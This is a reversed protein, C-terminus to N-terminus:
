VNWIKFVANRLRQARALVYDSAHGITKRLPVASPENVFYLPIESTLRLIGTAAFLVQEPLLVFTGLVLKPPYLIGSLMITSLMMFGTFASYVASWHQEKGRPAIALVFNFTVLNAGSWMIGSSVGEFWILTYSSESFLIWLTPNIAGLVVCIKMATKNGFKDIFRGWFRFSLLMAISQLMSYIQMEVLSMKLVRIMFPGWFPSGIGIAFMWWLGFRLLKLFDKNKLPEFLCFEEKSVVNKIIKEPQKQLLRLGYLGLITGIIFVFSLWLPLNSEKFVGGINLYEIFRYNRSSKTAEFLDTFFSFVYGICFGCVLHIQMRRAFFRGRIKKPILDTMWAVWMNGSITQLSASFFLICIFFLFALKPNIIAFSVGLLVNLLRGWFAFGICPKKRSHINKNHIVAYLQFFLSLQAIGSLLSLQIPSARLLVATKTIFNSGIGVLSTHFQAFIGEIVSIKMTKKLEQPKKKQIDGAAISNM